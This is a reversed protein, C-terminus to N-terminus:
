MYVFNDGRTGPFLAEICEAGKGLLKIRTTEPENLHSRLLQQAFRISHEKNTHQMNSTKILTIEM